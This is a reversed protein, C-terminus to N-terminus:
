DEEGQYRQLSLPRGKPPDIKTERANAVPRQVSHPGEKLLGGEHKQEKTLKNYIHDMPLDRSAIFRRASFCMSDSSISISQM